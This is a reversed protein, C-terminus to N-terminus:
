ANYERRLSAISKAIRSAREKDFTGKRITRNNWFTYQKLLIALVEDKSALDDLGFLAKLVNDHSDINDITILLKSVSDLYFKANIDLNIKIYYLLNAEEPKLYNDAEVISIIFNLIGYKMPMSKTLIDKNLRDSNKIRFITESLSINNKKSELYINKLETSILPQSITQNAYSTNMNFYASASDNKVYKKAWRKIIDVEEQVTQKDIAATLFGLRLIDFYISSPNM